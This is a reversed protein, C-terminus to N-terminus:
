NTEQIRRLCLMGMRRVFVSVMERRYWAQGRISDRVRSEEAAIKGAEFLIDENLVKGILFREASLTRLPTPAAVGLCIRAKRCAATDPDLTLVIGVGILPLEMAARRGVKQYAGGTHPLQSPVVIETLIEGPELVTQGPGEFFHILDVTREGNPGYMKVVGDLAILPIAGDASPVANVINGGAKGTMVVGSSLTTPMAAVLFLGILLEPNLPMFSFLAALLPAGIFIVCLAALISKYEKIGSFLKEAKPLIKM